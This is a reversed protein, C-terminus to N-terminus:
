GAPNASVSRFSRVRDAFLQFGKPCRLALTKLNTERAVRAYMEGQGLNTKCKSLLSQCKAKPASISEPEPFRDVSVGLVRALATEDALMWADFSRIAVGLAREILAPEFSQARDIETRRETQGDEDVLLIIARFGRKRAELMWRVAKKFYGQGAGHFMHIDNRALRDIEKEFSTEAIRGVLIPLAAEEHPGEVVLLVKM